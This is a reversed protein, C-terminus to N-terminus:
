MTIKQSSRTTQSTKEFTNYLVSHLFCFSIDVIYFHDCIDREDRGKPALACM